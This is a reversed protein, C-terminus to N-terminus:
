SKKHILNGFLESDSMDKAPRLGTVVVNTERKKKIFLDSHVAKIVEHITTPKSIGKNGVVTSWSTSGKNISILESHQVDLTHDAEDKRFPSAPPPQLAKLDKLEKLERSIGANINKLSAIENKLSTCTSELDKIRAANTTRCGHCRWGLISILDLHIQGFSTDDYGLCFIHSRIGCGDCTVTSLPSDATDLSEKCNVCGAIDLKKNKNKGRQSSRIAVQSQSQVQGHDIDDAIKDSKDLYKTDHASTKPIKNKQSGAIGLHSMKSKRKLSAPADTKGASIDSRIDVVYALSTCSTGPASDSAEIQVVPQRDRTFHVGFYYRILVSGIYYIIDLAFILASM